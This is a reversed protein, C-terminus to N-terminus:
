KLAIFKTGVRSSMWNGLPASSYKLEVKTAVTYHIDLIPFVGLVTGCGITQLQWFHDSLLWYYPLYQSSPPWLTVATAFSSVLVFIIYYTGKVPYPLDCYKILFNYIFM